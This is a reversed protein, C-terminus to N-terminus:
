KRGGSLVPFGSSAWGAQAYFTGAANEWHLFPGGKWQFVYKLNDCSNRWGSWLYARWPSWANPMYPGQTTGNLWILASKGSVGDEPNGYVYNLPAWRWRDIWRVNPGPDLGSPAREWAQALCFPILFVWGWIMAIALILQVIVFWLWGRM